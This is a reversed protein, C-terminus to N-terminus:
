FDDTLHCKEGWTTMWGVLHLECSGLMVSLFTLVLFLSFSSSVNAIATYFSRAVGSGEGPEDTFTVKVRHVALPPGSTNNRRNFHTNLQKFAQCILQNRERVVQLFCAVIYHAADQYFPGKTEHALPSESGGVVRSLRMVTM